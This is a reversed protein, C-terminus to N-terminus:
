RLYKRPVAFIDKGQELGYGVTIMSGSKESAETVLIKDSLGAIIRNRYPFYYKLQLKNVM